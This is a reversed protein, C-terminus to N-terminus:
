CGLGFLECARKRLAAQDEITVDKTLFQMPLFIQLYWPLDAGSLIRVATESIPPPVFGPFEFHIPDAEGGWKGGADQWVAGADWLADYPTLIMDFAYGYEHPSRGPPLAPYPSEGRLARLFLRMQLSHSRRTSTVRPQLGARAAADVLEAAFPQMEPILDDTWM